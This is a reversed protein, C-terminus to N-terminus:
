RLIPAGCVAAVGQEDPFGGGPGGGVTGAVSRVAEDLGPAVAGGHALARQHVQAAVEADAPREPLQQALPDPFERPRLFGGTGARQVGVDLGLGPANGPDKRLPMALRQRLIRRPLVELPHVDARSAVVRRAGDAALM